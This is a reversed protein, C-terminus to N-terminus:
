LRIGFVAIFALVVLVVLILVVAGGRGLKSPPEPTIPFQGPPFPRDPESVHLPTPSATGQKFAGLPSLGPGPRLVVAGMSAVSSKVILVYGGLADLSESGPGFATPLVDYGQTLYDRLGLASIDALRIVEASNPPISPLGLAAAITAPTPAEVLMRAQAGEPDIRFLRLIGTESQPISVMDTM